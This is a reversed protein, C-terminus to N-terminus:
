SIQQHLSARLQLYEKTMLLDQRMNEKDAQAGHMYEYVIMPQNGAAEVEAADIEAQHIALETEIQGRSATLM